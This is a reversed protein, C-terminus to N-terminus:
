VGQSRAQFTRQMAERYGNRMAATMLLADEGNDRYYRRRRGVQEFGYKRYLNQAATNSVRVELTAAVAGLDLAQGLLHVLLHEGVGRGRWEPHVAITSIHAEDVVFWYGAYGVVPRAGNPSPGPGPRVAPGLRRALRALWAAPGPAEAPKRSRGPQALAVFFHSHENQTLEYRYSAESWPLAFSLQDIAAVPPVDALVM